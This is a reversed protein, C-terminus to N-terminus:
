RLLVLILLGVGSVLVGVGIGGVRDEEFGERFLDLILGGTGLVGLVLLVWGAFHM